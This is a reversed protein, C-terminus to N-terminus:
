FPIPFQYEVRGGAVSKNGDGQVKRAYESADIQPDFSRVSYALEDNKDGFKMNMIITVKVDPYKNHLADHTLNVLEPAETVVAETGDKLTIVKSNRIVRERALHIQSNVISRGSAIIDDLNYDGQFLKLFKNFLSTEFSDHNFLGTYFPQSEAINKNYIRDDILDIIRGFTNEYLKTLPPSRIKLKALNFLFKTPGYGNEGEFVSINKKSKLEESSKGFCYITFNCTFNELLADLCSNWYTGLMIIHKVPLGRDIVMSSTIDYSRAESVKMQIVVSDEVLCNYLAAAGVECPMDSCLIVIMLFTDKHHFNNDINKDIKL